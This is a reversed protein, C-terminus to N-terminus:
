SKVASRFHARSAKRPVGVQWLPSAVAATPPLSQGLRPPAAPAGAKLALRLSGALQWAVLPSVSEGTPHPPFFFFCFLCFLLLFM